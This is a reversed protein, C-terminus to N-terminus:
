RLGHASVGQELATTKQMVCAQQGRNSSSKDTTSLNQTMVLDGNGMKLWSHQGCPLRPEGSDSVIARRRGTEDKKEEAMLIVYAVLWVM